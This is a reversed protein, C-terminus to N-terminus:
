RRGLEEEDPLPAADTELVEFRTSGCRPCACSGQAYKERDRTLGSHGCDQCTFRYWVAM